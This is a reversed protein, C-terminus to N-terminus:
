TSGAGFTEQWISNALEGYTVGLIQVETRFEDTASICSISQVQQTFASSDFPFTDVITLIQKFWLAQEHDDGPYGGDLVETPDMVLFDGTWAGLIALFFDVKRREIRDGVYEDLLGRRSNFQVIAKERVTRIRVEHWGQVPILVVDCPKFLFWWAVPITHRSDFYVGGDDFDADWEDTLRAPFLYARNAMSEFESFTGLERKIVRAPFPFYLAGAIARISEGSLRNSTRNLQIITFDLPSHKSEDNRM